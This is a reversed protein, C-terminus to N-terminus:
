NNEKSEFKLIISNYYKEFEQLAKQKDFKKLSIGDFFYISKPDNKLYFELTAKKGELFKLRDGKGFLYNKKVDKKPYTELKNFLILSTGYVRTIHLFPTNPYNSIASRDIEFDSKFNKVHKETKSKLEEFVQM